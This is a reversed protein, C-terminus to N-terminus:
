LVNKVTSFMEHFIAGSSYNILLFKTPQTSQADSEQGEWKLISGGGKLINLEM